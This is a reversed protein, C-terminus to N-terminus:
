AKNKEAQSLGKNNVSCRFGCRHCWNKGPVPSQGCLTCKGEARFRARLDKGYKAHYARHKEITAYAMLKERRASTDGPYAYM